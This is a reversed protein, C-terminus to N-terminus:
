TRFSRTAVSARGYSYEETACFGCHESSAVARHATHVRLQTLSCSPSLVSCSFRTSHETAYQYKRECLLAVHQYPTSTASEAFWLLTGQLWLDAAAAWCAISCNDCPCADTIGVEDTGGRVNSLAFHAPMNRPFSMCILLFRACGRVVSAHAVVRAVM